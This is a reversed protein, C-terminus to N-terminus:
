SWHSYPKQALNENNYAPDGTVEMLAWEPMELAQLAGLDKMEVEAIILGNNALHFEDVDWLVEDIQLGYRTKVVQLSRGAGYISAASALSVADEPDASLQWEFEPRVTGSRPGKITVVDDPVQASGQRRLRLFWGNGLPWYVQRVQRVYIPEVDPVHDLLFRREYELM